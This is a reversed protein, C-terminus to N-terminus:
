DESELIRIMEDQLVVVDMLTLTQPLVKTLSNEQGDGEDKGFENTHYM